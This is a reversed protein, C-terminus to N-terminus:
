KSRCTDIRLTVSLVCKGAIANIDNLPISTFGAQQFTVQGRIAATPDAEAVPEKLWALDGFPDIAKEIHAYLNIIDIWATEEDVGGANVAYSIEVNLTSEHSNPSHVKIPGAALSVQMYPLETATIKPVAFPMGSWKAIVRSLVTDSQLQQFIARFAAARADLFPTGDANTFDIM